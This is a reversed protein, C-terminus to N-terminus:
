QLLKLQVCNYCCCCTQRYRPSSTHRRLCIICALEYNLTITTSMSGPLKQRPKVTVHNERPAGRQFGGSGNRRGADVM